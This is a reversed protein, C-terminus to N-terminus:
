NVWMFSSVYNDGNINGFIEAVFKRYSKNSLEIGPIKNINQLVSGSKSLDVGPILNFLTNISLNGIPGLMTSINRTLMGLVQMDAFSTACNYTGAIYMSLDKGQTIIEINNAIGNKIKISGMINSFNGTKLPTILDIVSNISMGTIGSKVLNGAKLLYELSGLKPMKGDKVSFATEGNLTQMCTKYNTGNCALEMGGTMDGYIQNNLDFLAISIDNASISQVGLKLKIDNNKM